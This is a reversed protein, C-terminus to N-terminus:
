SLPPVDRAEGTAAAAYVADVVRHARVAEAFGPWAPVGAAVARVFAGDPNGFRLGRRRCEAVLDEGELEVSGEGTTTWRVPGLHDNEVVLHRRECFVEIRRLSPRELVDHWVTAHVGVAGGELEVVTAVTDEIGALDHFSASRASVSRVPGLTHELIDVDHIAHELLTGAGCLAPDGRWTSAYMGQIPIYQDDRFVFSMLRGAEPEAVLDGLLAFAPSHRLVLGVQHVIGAAEVAAAMAEARPADFALPKECFVARGRACAEDVLRAHEATWTAVYVADCADLVAAEDDLAPAGWGTAFEDRRATDPDFVGTLEYPEGSTHLGLAHAHAILGAGLFGIRVTV